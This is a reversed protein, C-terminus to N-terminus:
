EAGMAELWALLARVFMRKESIVHEGALTDRLTQIAQQRYGCKVLRDAVEIGTTIETAHRRLVDLWVTVAHALLGRRRFEEAVANRRDSSMARDVVHDAIFGAFTAGGVDLLTAACEEVYYGRDDLEQLFARKAVAVSETTRGLRHLAPAIERAVESDSEGAVAALVEVLRLAHQPLRATSFGGLCKLLVQADAPLEVLRDVLDASLEVHGATHLLPAGEAWEEPTRAVVAKHVDHAFGDLDLAYSAMRWFLNSESPLTQLAQRMLPEAATVGKSILRAAVGNLDHVAIDELGTVQSLTEEPAIDALTEYASIKAPVAVRPDSIVAHALRAAAKPHSACLEAAATAKVDAPRELLQDVLADVATAGGQAAVTEVAERFASGFMSTSSQAIIMDAIWLAEETCRAANALQLVVNWRPPHDNEPDANTRPIHSAEPSIARNGRMHRVMRRVLHAAGERRNLDLLTKVAEITQEYNAEDSARRLALQEARDADESSIDALGHAIARLADPDSSAAFQEDLWQAPESRSDLHGLAIASCVRTALALEINSKLGTLRGILEGTVANSNLGGLVRCVRTVDSWPDGGTGTALVLEVLRDTLRTTLAEPVSVNEALLKAALLVHDRGGELLREMVLSIDNGEVRDWLVLTFLVFAEKSQQTSSEVWDDLAPFDRPITPVKRRAALFEAFLRHLFEPGHAGRAFVGIGTLAAELDDPPCHQQLWQAALEVLPRESELRQEALHEILDVRREYIREVAELREKDDITRRFEALTARRSVGDDLLYTLFREFLDVRNQPLEREPELTNAIAAITALLPVSVLERLRGHSVQRLFEAARAKHRTPDQQRFWLYAFEDLQDKGFPEISYRDLHPGQLQDLEGCSLERSTIVLQHDNGYRMRSTVMEVARRLHDTNVIEDLGDVFVLWRAGLARRAFLDHSLPANLLHSSVAEALSESWTRKHALVKANVRLPMVPVALPQGQGPEPKLWEDALIQVYRQGLTSKGSGPGGTVLLHRGTALAEHFPMVQASQKPEDPERKPERERDEKAEAATDEVHQPSLSRQVYVDILSPQGELLHYPLTVAMERQLRLLDELEATLEPRDRWSTLPPYEPEVGHLNVPGYIDRAQIVSGYANRVENQM